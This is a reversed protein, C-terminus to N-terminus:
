ESVGVRATEPGEPEQPAAASEVARAATEDPKAGAAEAVFSAAPIVIRFTSGVGPCSEVWIKGGYTEVISRVHALGVGRGPIQAVRQDKGRRFLYFIRERDEEPIGMGNDAVWFHWFGERLEAGVRITPDPATNYKIANEILNQFIQRIRQPDGHLVPLGTEVELRVSREEIQYDLQSRIGDLVAAFSVPVLTRRETRIRSLDLLAQIMEMEREVNSQIRRVRDSVTSDLEPGQRRLILNAMGAINRLPANLDHSVARLFDEKEAMLRELAENAEQLERTRNAVKQELQAGWNKLEDNARALEQNTRTLDDRSAQLARAMENFATAVNGLEDLRDIKVRCTLDGAAISETGRTLEELPRVIIRALFNFIFIACLVIVCMVFVAWNTAERIRGENAITSVGVAVTGLWMAPRQATAPAGVGEVLHMCEATSFSTEGLDSRASMTLLHPMVEGPLTGSSAMISAHDDFVLVYKVEPERAVSDTFRQLVQDDGFAMPVTVNYALTRALTTGRSALGLTYLQREHDVFWQTLLLGLIAILLAATLSFKARLSM